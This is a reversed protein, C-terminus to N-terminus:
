MKVKSSHLLLCCVCRDGCGAGCFRLIRYKPARPSTAAPLGDPVRRVLTRPGTNTSVASVEEWRPLLRARRCSSSWRSAMAAPVGDTRGDTRAGGVPCPAGGALYPAGASRRGGASCPAGHQLHWWGVRSHSWVGGGREPAPTPSKICVHSQGGWGPFTVCTHAPAVVWILGEWPVPALAKASALWSPEDLSVKPYGEYGRNGGGEEGFSVTLFFDFVRTSRSVCVGPFPAPASPLRRGCCSGGRTAIGAAPSGPLFPAGLNERLLMAGVAGDSGGARGLPASGPCIRTRPSLGPLRERSRRVFGAARGPVRGRGGARRAEPREGCPAVRPGRPRVGSRPARDATCGRAGM